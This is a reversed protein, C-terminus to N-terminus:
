EISDPSVKQERIEIGGEGFLTAKLWSVAFDLLAADDREIEQQKEESVVYIELFKSGFVFRRFADLNYSAMFFMQLTKEPITIFPGLSKRKLVIEIWGANKEDYPVVGQDERWKRVTTVQSLGHGLCHPENIMAFFRKNAAEDKNHFLGAGIPYYRCAVPRAEYISCGDDTLFPCPAGAEEKPKIVPIPLDTAEIKGLTTYLFLFEDSTLGLFQKMQIVDYPTLIVHNEKCCKGFCALEKNCSFSFESNMGLKVPIIRETKDKPGYM